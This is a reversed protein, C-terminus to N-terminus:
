VTNILLLSFFSPTFFCVADVIKSLKYLKACTMLGSNKLVLFSNSTSIDKHVYTGFRLHNLEPRRQHTSAGFFITELVSFKSFLVRGSDRSRWKRCKSVVKFFISHRESAINQTRIEAMPVNCCKNMNQFENLILQAVYFLWIQCIQQSICFRLAFALKEKSAQRNPPNQHEFTPKVWRCHTVQSRHSYM